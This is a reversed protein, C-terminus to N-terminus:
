FDTGLLGEETRGAGGLECSKESAPCGCVADHARRHEAHTAHGLDPSCYRGSCCCSCSCSCSQSCMSSTRISHLPQLFAHPSCHTVQSSIRSKRESPSAKASGGLRVSM